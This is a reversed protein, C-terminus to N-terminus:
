ATARRLTSREYSRVAGVRFAPSVRACHLVCSMGTTGKGTSSARHFISYEYLSARPRWTISKGVAAELSRGDINAISSVGVPCPSWLHSTEEHAGTPM